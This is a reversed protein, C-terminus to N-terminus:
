LACPDSLDIDAKALSVVFFTGVFAFEDREADALVFVDTQHPQTEREVSRLQHM